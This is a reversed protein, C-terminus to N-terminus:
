NKRSFSWKTTTCPLRLISHISHSLLITRCKRMWCQRLFETSIINKSCCYNHRSFCGHSPVKYICKSIRICCRWTHWKTSCSCCIGNQMSPRDWSNVRTVAKVSRKYLWVVLNSFLYHIIVEEVATESRISWDSFPSWIQQKFWQKAFNGWSLKFNIWIVPKSRYISHAKGGLM